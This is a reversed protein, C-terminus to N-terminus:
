KKWWIYCGYNSSLKTYGKSKLLSLWKENASSDVSRCANSLGCIQAQSTSWDCIGFGLEAYPGGAFVVRPGYCFSVFFDNPGNGTKYNSYAACGSDSPEKLPFTQGSYVELEELYVTNTGNAMRYQEISKKIEGAWIELQEARVSLVAKEYAPVAVAALIGIILVVVLLEILSFGQKNSASVQHSSGSVLEPHRCFRFDKM